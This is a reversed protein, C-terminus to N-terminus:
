FLFGNKMRPFQLAFQVILSCQTNTLPDVQWFGCYGFWSYKSYGHFCACKKSFQLSEKSYCLWETLEPREMSLMCKLFTIEGVRIPIDVVTLLLCSCLSSNMQLPHTPVSSTKTQRMTKRNFCM